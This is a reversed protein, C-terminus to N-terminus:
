RTLAPTPYDVRVAAPLEGEFDQLAQRLRQAEVPDVAYFALEDGALIFNDTVTWTAVKEWHPPIWDRIWLPHGIAIRLKRARALQDLSQANYDGRSRAQQVETDGVGVLDTLQIHGLYTGLGIDNLGVAEGPYYQQLFRGVQYPQQYINRTADPYHYLFFGSRVVLPFILLLAVGLWPLRQSLSPTFSPALVGLGVGALMVLYAEYRYGGVEAFLLHLGVVGLTLSLWAHPIKPLPRTLALLLAIALTLMFPNEYLKEGAQGVWAILDSQPAYGKTLLSLPLWTGGQAVSWSGWAFVTLAGLGAVLLAARLRFQWGLALTATAVLFLTEYRLSVALVIWGLWPGLRKDPDAVLHSLHKVLMVCAALHLTHEMGLLVLLPLPLLLMLVLWVLAKGRWSPWLRWVAISLLLAALANLLLPWYTAEGGIRILLALLLTYGPASSAFATQGPSFGWRGEEALNRAVSLHIYSDDLPYIGQGDTDALGWAALVGTGLALLGLLLFLTWPGSAAKERPKM